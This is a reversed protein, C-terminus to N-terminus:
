RVQVLKKVQFVAHESEVIIHTTTKKGFTVHVFHMGFLSVAHELHRECMVMVYMNCLPIRFCQLFLKQLGRRALAGLTLLLEPTWRGSCM